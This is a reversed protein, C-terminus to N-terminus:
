NHNHQIDNHQTDNYQADNSTRPLDKLWNWRKHTLVPPQGQPFCM